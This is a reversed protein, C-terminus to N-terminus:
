SRLAFESEAFWVGEEGLEYRTITAVPFRASFNALEESARDLTDDDVDFVLTVHPHYDFPLRRRLPGSRVGAELRMCADVGETLQIFVTPTVPRFSSTGRLEVTFTDHAAAADALHQEVMPVRSTRVQTPPLLTIHTPITWALRDGFEARRIQLQEGWPEPVAIAVGITRVVEDDM